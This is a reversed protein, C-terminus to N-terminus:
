LLDLRKLEGAVLISTTPMYPSPKSGLFDIRLTGPGPFPTFPGFFRNKVPIELHHVKQFMSIMAHGIELKDAKNSKLQSGIHPQKAM